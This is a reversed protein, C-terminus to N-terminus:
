RNYCYCGPRGVRENPPSLTMARFRPLKVSAAPLATAADFSSAVMTGILAELSVLSGPPLM